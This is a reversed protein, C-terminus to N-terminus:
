NKKIATALLARKLAETTPVSGIWTALVTTAFVIDAVEGLMVDNRMIGLKDDAFIYTQTDNAKTDPVFSEFAKLANVDLACPSKCNENLYHRWAKISEERSVDRLMKIHVVRPEKSQLVAAADTERKVLYLAAIYVHIKLFSYERVGAGNLMLTDNKYRWNDPMEHGAITAAHLPSALSCMLTAFLASILTRIMNCAKCINGSARRIAM